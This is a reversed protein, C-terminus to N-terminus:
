VVIGVVILAIGGIIGLIGIGKVLGLNRAPVEVTSPTPVSM